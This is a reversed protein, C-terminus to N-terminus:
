KNLPKKNRYNEVEGELYLLEQQYLGLMKIVNDPSPDKRLKEKLTQYSDDYKKIENGVKTKEDQNDIYSYVLKSSMHIRYKYNHEVKWYKLSIHTLPPCIYMKWVFFSLIFILLTAVGVKVLYPVISIVERFKNLLKRLFLQQHDPAPQSENFKDRNSRIFRELDDEEWNMTNNEKQYTKL